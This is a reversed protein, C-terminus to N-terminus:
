RKLDRSRSVDFIEINLTLYNKLSYSTEKHFKKDGNYSIGKYNGHHFFSRDFSCKFVSPVLFLRVFPEFSNRVLFMLSMTDLLSEAFHDDFTGFQIYLIILDPFSWNYDV